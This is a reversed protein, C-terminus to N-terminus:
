AATAHTSLGPWAAVASSGAPCCGLLLWLAGPLRLAGAGRAMNRQQGQVLVLDEGLVQPLTAAALSPLPPRVPTPHQWKSVFIGAQRGKLCSM